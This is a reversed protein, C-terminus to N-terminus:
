FIIVRASISSAFDYLPGVYWDTDPNELAAQTMRGAMPDPIHTGGRPLSVLLPASGRTNNFTKLM